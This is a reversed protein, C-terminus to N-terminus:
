WIQSPAMDAVNKNSLVTYRGVNLTYSESGIREKIRNVLFQGDERDTDDVFFIFDDSLREFIFDLGNSRINSSIKGYPGDIIVIGFSEGQEINALMVKRDYWNKQEVDTIEAHLIDCNGRSNIMNIKGRFNEAWSLTNDIGIYRNDKDSKQLLAAIFLSSNGTGFELINLKPNAEIVNLIHQIMVYSSSWGTNTIFIQDPILKQLHNFATIENLKFNLEEKSSNINENLLTSGNFNQFLRQIKKYM